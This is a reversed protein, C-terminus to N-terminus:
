AGVVEALQDDTLANSQAGEPINKNSDTMASAGKRTTM